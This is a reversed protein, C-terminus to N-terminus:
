ASLAGIGALLAEREEKALQDWNEIVDFKQEGDVIPKFVGREIGVRRAITAIQGVYYRRLDSSAFAEQLVAEVQTREPNPRNTSYEAVRLGAYEIGYQVLVDLVNNRLYKLADPRHLAAPAHISEINIVRIERGEVMEVVAFTVSSPAARLGISRM